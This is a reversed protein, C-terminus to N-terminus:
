LTKVIKNATLKQPITYRPHAFMNGSECSRIVLNTIFKLVGTHQYIKILKINRLLPRKKNPKCRTGLLLDICHSVLRDSNQKSSRNPTLRAPHVFLKIPLLRSLGFAHSSRLGQMDVRFLSGTRVEVMKDNLTAGGALAPPPVRLHGDRYTPKWTPLDDKWPVDDVDIKLLGSTRSRPAFIRAEVLGDEDRTPLRHATACCAPGLMGRVPLRRRTTSIGFRLRRRGRWRRTAQRAAPKRASFLGTGCVRRGPKAASHRRCARM